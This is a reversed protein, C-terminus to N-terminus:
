YLLILGMLISVIGALKFIIVGRNLNEKIGYLKDKFIFALLFTFMFQFGLMANVLSVNGLRIAFYLIIFGIGALLKNGVFVLKSRNSANGYSLKIDERTGTWLLSLFASGVFGVRTWFLGNIFDSQNFSLKLLVYYLGFLAGAIIATFFVKKEVKGLLFIGSILLIVALSNLSPLVDKLIFISFVYTFIAGMAGAQTAAVSIDSERIARYLFILGIFFSAGASVAILFYNLGYWSVGFPILFVAGLSLVSVGFAYARYKPIPAALLYKDIVFVVANIFYAIISLYLWLM